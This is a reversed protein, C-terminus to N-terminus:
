KPSHLAVKNGESDIFVAYYGIEETILTKPLVVLGGAPEIRNLMNTLDTGANLYVLTGNQSPVYGEGRCIAGGIGTHTDMPLFGMRLPGMDMEQLEKEYIAVYFKRAREFDTVPIEFWNVVNSIQEM